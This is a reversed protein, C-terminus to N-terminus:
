SVDEFDQGATVATTMNMTRKENRRSGCVRCSERLGVMQARDPMGGDLYIHRVNWERHRNGLLTDVAFVITGAVIQLVDVIGPLNCPYSRDDVYQPFACSWCAENVEQTMVYLSNGDGSVAAHIASVGHEYAYRALALRSPNNDVGGIFLADKPFVVGMELLEQFRRPYSTVTTAFLGERSLRKALAVSKFAGVDDRSFLQRTCNKLEVRDDDILTLQGIGKRVLASAVHSGIGGAGIMVVHSKQMTALDFGSVKAQTENLSGTLKRGVPRTKFVQKRRSWFDM